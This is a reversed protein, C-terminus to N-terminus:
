ECDDYVELEADADVDGYCSQLNSIDAFYLQGKQVLINLTATYISDNGTGGSVNNRKGAFVIYDDGGRGFITSDNGQFYIKDDGCAGSIYNNNGIAVIKNNGTGRCEITNFNGASMAVNDGGGLLITTNDTYNSVVDSGSGGVYVNNGKGPQAEQNYFDTARTEINGVISSISLAESM